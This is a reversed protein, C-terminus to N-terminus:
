NLKKCANKSFRERNAGVEYILVGLGKSPTIMKPETRNKDFFMVL